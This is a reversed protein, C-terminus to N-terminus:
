AGRFHPDRKEAFAATGEARDDTAFLNAVTEREHDLALDLPLSWSDRLRKVAALALPARAALVGALDLARVLATGAPVVLNALGIRYAETADIPEGTMLMQTAVAPAVIRPLRQTGGAGPLLGLKIEPVGFRADEAVVRLDCALALELGGGFAVGGVAAISPKPLRELRRLTTELREIFARFQPAGPLAAFEKIDAGASFARGEGAVVVVRVAPDRGAAAVADDLAAITRTDLANLRDPRRMTLVAVGGDREVTVAPGTGDREGNV